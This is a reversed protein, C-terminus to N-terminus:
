KCDKGQKDKEKCEKSSSSRTAPIIIPTYVPRAPEYSRVAPTYSRAATAAPRVIVTPRAIIVPRAIVTVAHAQTSFTALAVLAMVSKNLM